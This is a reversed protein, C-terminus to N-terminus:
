RRYFDTLVNPRLATETGCTLPSLQSVRCVRGYQDNKHSAMAAMNTSLFLLIKRRQSNVATKICIVHAFKRKNQGGVHRCHLGDIEMSCTM